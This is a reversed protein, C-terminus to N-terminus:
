NPRTGNSAKPRVREAPRATLPAPSATRKRAGENRRAHAWCHRKDLFRLFEQWLQRRDASEQPMLLSLGVLAFSLVVVPLALALPPNSVSSWFCTVGLGTGGGLVTRTRSTM